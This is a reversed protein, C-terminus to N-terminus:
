LTKLYEILAAKEDPSLTTGYDHGLNSNGPLRTDYLFAGPFPSAHEFGVLDPDFEWSGTYFTKPRKGPEVLLAALNPVSGNHLYPATAWIGNLPRARYALPAIFENPRGQNVVKALAANDESEAIWQDVIKGTVLQAAEYSAISEPGGIKSLNVKRRAYTAAQRPDTGIEELPILPNEIETRATWDEAPTILQHCEGCQQAYITSGFDALDQDIEGFLADPWAPATLKMMLRQGEAINQVNVGHRITDALLTSHDIPSQVGLAEIVNRTLPQRISSNYLVYSFFPTDWTAPFSVPATEPVYNRAEAIPLALFLNVGREHADLRGFGSATPLEPAQAQAGAIFARGLARRKVFCQFAEGLADPSTEVGQGIVRQAFRSFKIPDGATAGIAEGLKDQFLEIDHHAPGGEIRINQGRYSVQGTHCAACGFGVWNGDWCFAGEPQTLPRKAFGVPLGDPNYEANKPDVLFGLRSMNASSAFLETGEAQELALLWEYPMFITGQSLYYWWQAEDETWGQDLYFAPSGPYSTSSAATPQAWAGPVPCAVAAVCGIALRAGIFRFFKLTNFM